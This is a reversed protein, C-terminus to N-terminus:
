KRLTEDDQGSSEGGWRWSEVWKGTVCRLQCNDGEVTLECTM